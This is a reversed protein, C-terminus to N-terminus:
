RNSCAAGRKQECVHRRDANNFRKRGRRKRRMTKNEEKDLRGVRRRRRRRRRQKM